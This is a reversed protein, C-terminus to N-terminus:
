YLIFIRNYRYFMKLCGTIYIIIFHDQHGTRSLEETYHIQSDQLKIM